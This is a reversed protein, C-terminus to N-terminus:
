VYPELAFFRFHYQVATQCYECWGVWLILAGLTQLAPSQQPLRKVSGDGRFRGNRPKVVIAAVLACLGAGPLILFPPHYHTSKTMRTQMDYRRKSRVGATARTDLMFRHRAELCCCPIEVYVGGTMHVVGSGAFDAAGCGLLLPASEARCQQYEEATTEATCRFPSAWGGSSWAWHVM